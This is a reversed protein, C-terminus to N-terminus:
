LFELSKEVATVFKEVDSDNNYISFSARVTSAVGLAQMLPQCCHHGTRVFVGQKNLFFGVDSPHLGDITFSVISHRYSNAGLLKVKQFQKLGQEALTLLAKEHKQIKEFGIKQVYNIAAALGVAGSVNPTGAEFRHPSAIYSTGEFSVRDIMSGGGQYPPMENLLSERGYLVGIGDPGFLKHGSFAVFDCNLKQVDIPISSAAQAADLVVIAGAAKAMAIIKEIPHVTGLANSFMQVSVIKTKASLKNAFDNFDIEGNITAKAAIVKAGKSESALQWPVINSHHEMETLLIEDGPQIMQKVLSHAVLNLSETTNRTFVIENPSAANIFKQVVERAHEYFATAQDSLQHAGRHVNAAEYSLFQTVRDIVPRPKLTSAASDLYVMSQNNLAPFDKRVDLM